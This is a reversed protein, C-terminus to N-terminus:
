AARPCADCRIVGNLVSAVSEAEPCVLGRQCRVSIVSRVGVREAPRVQVVPVPARHRSPRRSPLSRAACRMSEAWNLPADSPMGYSDGLCVIVLKAHTTVLSPAHRLPRDPRRQMLRRIHAFVVQVRRAVAATVDTVILGKAHNHIFTSWRQSPGRQGPSGVCDHPMYKRVTRPSVRLGLKLLLENAIRQQGWTLNERAMQCILAQLESPIPTRGPKAPQTLLLRWGQRRWRKFTAPHVITLAPQWDFWYSLWVLILRTTHMARRSPANHAQYLALQKQLFLHEAALAMCSRV